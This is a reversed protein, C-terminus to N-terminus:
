GENEQPPAPMPSLPWFHWLDAYAAWAPFTLGLMINIPTFMNNPYTMAKAGFHWVAFANYVYYAIIGIGIAILMNVFAGALPSLARGPWMQFMTMLLLLGYIYCIGYFLFRIPEIHMSVVGIGNAIASLVVCSIVLVIGLVPQKMLAQSKHFPWMGLATFSFLFVMMWILFTIASEWRFPGQPAMAALAALPGGKAYFPVADIPSPNVGTPFSLLNFNFLKLVFWAVVYALLLSLWGRPGLSLKQFPWMGFAVIVFFTAVVV